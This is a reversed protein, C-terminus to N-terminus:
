QVAILRDLVGMVRQRTESRKLKVFPAIIKPKVVDPDESLPQMVSAVAERLEAALSSAKGPLLEFKAGDVRRPYASWLVAGDSTRTFAVVNQEYDSAHEVTGPHKLSWGIFDDVVNAFREREGAHAVFTSMKACFDDRCQKLATM